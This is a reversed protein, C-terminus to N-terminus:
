WKSIISTAAYLAGAVFTSIITIKAPMKGHDSRLAIAEYIPLCNLVICGALVMQLILSEGVDRGGSFILVAGWIFSLLNIIAATTPPVFLTSPAGFEWVGRYYRKYQEDDVVKSTVIFGYSSLGIPKLLCEATAFAFSSLNRIMWMRQSSWWKRFSSGEIVYEIFDQGYAGLFLFVHLLFWPEYMKPFVSVGNFLGLQPIFAYITTPISLITWFTYCSYGLGIPLGMTRTGFTIPSYKSLGIELLGLGWREWQYLADVLNIPANGLFAAREPDCFISRWGESHMQYGTFLDEVLSGYRFGMKSGWQTQIEYNCSAVGHALALVDPSKIHKKVVYDPSLEPIGTEVCASPDGFLARRRFFTGTGFYYAGGLGDAGRPHLRIIHKFEYGYTDDKNLGQFRQPFQIFGLTPQIALDYVYCLIRLPTTPDNSYMDCDQTLILPANTMITSVRLLVNLAGAKFYHLSTKSKQRSVYILNPLFHGTIDKNHRSDLLVQIVTPHDQLTFGSKWKNFVEREEDDNIYIESVEGRNMVNEVKAKMNEYMEKIKDTDSNTSHVSSFYVHPSRDMIDNERCFPLWYSAFKAAEMFAFLTFASGADDSVYVSIKETPYDYAMLSLATNVVGIPPEKYPDATCVFVDLGPFEEERIFKKLNEPYQKRRIPCMRLAQAAAWMFALVLDAILLSLTFSFSALTTSNVLTQAHRYLLALIALTYVAAFFRNPGTRPHREVTHFPPQNNPEPATSNDDRGSQSRM